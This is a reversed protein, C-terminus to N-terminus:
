GKEHARCETATAWLLKHPDLVENLEEFIENLYLITACCKSSNPNDTCNQVTSNLSELQQKVVEVVNQVTQDIVSVNNMIKAEIIVAHDM